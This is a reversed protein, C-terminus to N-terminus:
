AWPTGGDACSQEDWLFWNDSSTLFLCTNEITSYRQQEEKLLQDVLSKQVPGEMRPLLDKYLRISEKEMEMAIKLAGVEDTEPSIKKLLSGESRELSSIMRGIIRGEAGGAKPMPGLAEIQRQEEDAISQFTMKAEPDETKEAAQRYFFAMAGVIDRIGAADGTQMRSRHKSGGQPIKSM